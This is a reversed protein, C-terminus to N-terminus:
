RGEWKGSAFLNVQVTKERPCQHYAWLEYREPIAKAAPWVIEWPGWPQKLRNPPRSGLPRLEEEASTDVVARYSTGGIVVYAALGRYECRRKVMDGMLQLGEPTVNQATVTVAVFPTQGTFDRWPRSSQAQRIWPEAVALVIIAALVWIPLRNARIATKIHDSM